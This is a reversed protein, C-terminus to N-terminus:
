PAEVANASPRAGERRRVPPRGARRDVRAHRGTRPAAVSGRSILRCPMVVQAPNRQEPHQLQHILTRVGWAGMEYHPLELTTLGPFLGEAVVPMNDFGIVSLDAPISLDRERAAHYVGMAMRDNFCFIAEPRDPLDLLARAAVLGGAADSPATVLHDERLTLGAEALASRVGQLRQRSALIDDENNIFGIETHGHRLLERVATAGGLYEDPVVSAIAADSCAADM